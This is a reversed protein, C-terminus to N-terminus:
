HLRNSWTTDQLVATGQAVTNGEKVLPKLTLGPFDDPSLAVLRPKVTEASEPHGTVAGAIRLDLGKKLNLTINM